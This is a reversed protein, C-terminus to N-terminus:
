RDFSADRHNNWGSFVAPAVVTGAIPNSNTLDVTITQGGRTQQVRLRNHTHRNRRRVFV